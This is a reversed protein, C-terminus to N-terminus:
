LPPHRCSLLVSCNYQTQVQMQLMGLLRSKRDHKGDHRGDRGPQAPGARHAKARECGCWWEMVEVNWGLVCDATYEVRCVAHLTSALCLACCAVSFRDRATLVNLALM